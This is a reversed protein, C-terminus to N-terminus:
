KRPTWLVLAVESKLSCSIANVNRIQEAFVDANSLVLFFLCNNFTQVAPPAVLSTPSVLSANDHLRDYLIASFKQDCTEM